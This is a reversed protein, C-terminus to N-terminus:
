VDEEEVNEDEETYKKYEELKKDREKQLEEQRRNEEIEQRAQGEKQITWLRSKLYIDIAITRKNIVKYWKKNNFRCWRKLKYLSFYDNEDAFDEIEQIIEVLDVNKLLWDEYDMGGLGIVPDAVLEDDTWQQKDAYEKGSHILYKGYGVESKIVFARTGNVSAAIEDAQEQSKLSDFFIMVHRHTKSNGDPDAGKNKAPDHLPSIFMRVHHGQLTELWNDPASDGPYFIFSWKSSRNEKKSKEKEEAPQLVDPREVEAAQNANKEEM